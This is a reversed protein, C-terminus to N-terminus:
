KSPGALDSRVEIGLRVEAQIMKKIVWVVRALRGVSWITTALVLALLWPALAEIWAAILGCLSALTAAACANLAGSFIAWHDTYSRSARLINFAKKDVLGFLFAIVAIIFGLTTGFLSLLASFVTLNDSRNNGILEAGGYGYLWIGTAVSALAFLSGEAIVFHRHWWAIM